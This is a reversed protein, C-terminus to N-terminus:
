ARVSDVVAYIKESRLQPALIPESNSWPAYWFTINTKDYTIAITLLDSSIFATKM